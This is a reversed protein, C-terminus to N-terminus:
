KAPCDKMDSPCICIWLAKGKVCNGVEVSGEAYAEVIDELDKGFHGLAAGTESIVEGQHIGRQFTGGTRLSLYSLWARFPAFHGRPFPSLPATRIQQGHEPEVILSPEDAIHLQEGGPKLPLERTLAVLHKGHGENCCLWFVSLPFTAM